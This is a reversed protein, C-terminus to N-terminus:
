AKRSSGRWGRVMSPEAVAASLCTVDNTANVLYVAGSVPLSGTTASGCVRANLALVRCKGPKLTLGTWYATTGDDMILPPTAKRGREVVLGNPLDLRVGIGPLTSNGRNVLRAAFVVSKGPRVSRRSPRVRLGLQACAPIGQPQARAPRPLLACWCVLYILLAAVM